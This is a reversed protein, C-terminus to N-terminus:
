RFLDVAARGKMGKTVGLAAAADSVAIVDSELMDDHDKVGTVLACAEGVKNCVDLNIYACALLGKSGRIILLPKTLQIHERALGTWFASAMALPDLPPYPHLPTQALTLTHQHGM